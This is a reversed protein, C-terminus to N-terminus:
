VDKPEEVPLPKGALDRFPYAALLGGIVAVAYEVIIAYAGLVEVPLFPGTFHYVLITMIAAVLPKVNPLSTPQNEFQM